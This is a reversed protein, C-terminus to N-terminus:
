SEDDEDIFQILGDLNYEEESMGRAKAEGRRIIEEAKSTAQSEGLDVGQLAALFRYEDEKMAFGRTYMRELEQQTLSDELEDFNKYSGPYM